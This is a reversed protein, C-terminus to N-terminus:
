GDNWRPDGLASPYIVIAGDRDALKDFTGRTRREIDAAGGRWGHLVLVLARGPKAPGGVHLLYKRTVGGVAIQREVTGAMPAASCAGALCVMAPAVAFALVSPTRPVMM